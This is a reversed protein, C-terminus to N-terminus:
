PIAIIKALEPQSDVLAAARDIALNLAQEPSFGSLIQQQYWVIIDLGGGDSAPDAYDVAMILENPIPVDRALETSPANRKQDILPLLDIIDAM